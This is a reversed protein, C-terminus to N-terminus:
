GVVVAAPGEITLLGSNLPVDVPAGGDSSTHLRHLKKAYKVAINKAANYDAHVEYGCKLCCFEDQGDTCPRNDPHTFGCDTRSCQRSTNKPNV